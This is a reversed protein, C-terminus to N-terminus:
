RVDTGHTDEEDAQVPADCPPVYDEFAQGLVSGAITGLMILVFSILLTIVVYIM